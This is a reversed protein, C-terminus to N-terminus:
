GKLRNTALKSMEFNKKVLCGLKKRRQIGREGGKGGKEVM